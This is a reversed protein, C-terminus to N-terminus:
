QLALLLFVNASIDRLPQVFMECQTRCNLMQVISGSHLYIFFIFIVKPMWPRRVVSQTNKHVKCTSDNERNPSWVAHRGLRAERTWIPDVCVAGNTAVLGCAFVIPRGAAVAALAEEPAGYALTM